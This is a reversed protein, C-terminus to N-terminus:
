HYQATAKNVFSSTATALPTFQRDDYPPMKEIKRQTTESGTASLSKRASISQAWICSYRRSVSHTRPGQYLGTLINVDEKPANM